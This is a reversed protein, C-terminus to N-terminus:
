WKVEAALPKSRKDSVLLTLSRLMTSRCRDCLFSRLRTESSSMALSSCSMTSIEVPV